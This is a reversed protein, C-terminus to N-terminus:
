MDKAERTQRCSGDDDRSQTPNNRGQRREHLRKSSRSLRVSGLLLPELLLVDAQLLDGGSQVNCHMVAKRPEAAEAM